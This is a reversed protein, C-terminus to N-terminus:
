QQCEGGRTNWRHKSQLNLKTHLGLRFIDDDSTRHSAMWLLGAFVSTTSRSLYTGFKHGHCRNWNGPVLEKQFLASYCPLLLQLPFMWGRWVCPQIHLVHLLPKSRILYVAFGRHLATWWSFVCYPLWLSWYFLWGASKCVTGHGISRFRRFSHFITVLCFLLLQDDYCCWYWRWKHDSICM